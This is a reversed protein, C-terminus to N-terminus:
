SCCDSAISGNTCKPSYHLSMHTCANFTGSATSFCQRPPMPIHLCSTNSTDSHKHTYLQLVHICVGFISLTEDMTYHNAVAIDIGTLQEQRGVTSLVAPPLPKDVRLLGEVRTPLSSFNQLAMSPPAHHTTRRSTCRAFENSQQNVCLHLARSPTSTLM